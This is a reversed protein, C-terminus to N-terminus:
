FDDSGDGNFRGRSLPLSPSDHCSTPRIQDRDGPKLSKDRGGAGFLHAELRSYSPRDNPRALWRACERRRPSWPSVVRTSPRQDSFRWPTASSVVLYGTSDLKSGNRDTDV